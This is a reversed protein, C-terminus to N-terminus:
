VRKFERIEIVESLVSVMKQISKCNYNTLYDQLVLAYRNRSTSLDMEKFDMAVCEFPGSVPISKMPLM